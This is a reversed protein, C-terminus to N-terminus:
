YNLKDETTGLLAEVANLAKHGVESVNGAIRSVTPVVVTTLKSDPIKTRPTAM